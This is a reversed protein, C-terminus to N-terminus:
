EALWRRILTLSEQPHSKVISNIVKVNANGAIFEKEVNEIDIMAEKLNDIASAKDEGGVSETIFSLHDRKISGEIDGKNVEFAKNALPKVVLILVLIAV